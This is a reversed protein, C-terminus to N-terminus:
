VNEAWENIYGAWTEEDKQKQAGDWQGEGGQGLHRDAQRHVCAGVQAGPKKAIERNKLVREIERKGSAGTM